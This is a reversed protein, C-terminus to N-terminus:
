PTRRLWWVRCRGIPYTRRQQYRKRDDDLKSRPEYNQTAQRGGDVGVLHEILTGIPGSKPPVPDAAASAYGVEFIVWNGVVLGSGCGGGSLDVVVVGFGGYSDLGTREEACFSSQPVVDVKRPESAHVTSLLVPAGSTLMCDTSTLNRFLNEHLIGYSRHVSQTATTNALFHECVRTASRRRQM